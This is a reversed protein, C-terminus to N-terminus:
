LLFISMIVKVSCWLCATSVVHHQLLSSSVNLTSILASTKISQVHGHAATV